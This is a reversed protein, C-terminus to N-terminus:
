SSAEVTVWPPAPDDWIEGTAEKIATALKRMQAIVGPDYMTSTGMGWTQVNVHSPKGPGAFTIAGITKDTRMLEAAEEASEFAQYRHRPLEVKEGAEARRCADAHAALEEPGCCEPDPDFDRPDNALMAVGYSQDIAMDWLTHYLDRVVERPLCITPTL